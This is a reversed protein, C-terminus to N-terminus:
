KKLKEDNILINLIFFVGGFCALLFLLIALGPYGFIQFSTQIPMLLAAGIILSALVLGLAIRNAIKEFGVMLKREDISHVRIKLENRELVNLFNNIRGPLTYILDGMELFINSFSALSFMHRMRRQLISPLNEKILNNPNLTFDLSKIVSDLNLLTKGLTNFKSPLQLEHDSAIRVIELLLKGVAMEKWDNTQSESILNATEQYFPHYEFDETSKGLKIVIEAAEEGRNESIALLLKLLDQQMRPPIYEVMGVDFLAIKNEDTLFLNGPHPDIHVFGDVFIQKLYAKFLEEALNKSPIDLKLLPHLTTIKTGAMFEMTLVKSTTYDEIPLPIIISSFEKLNEAFITLNRAEKRFDLENLLSKRLSKIRDEWFYNKGLLKNHDLFNGLEELMNLDEIIKDRINPRQVKVAVHTGSHLMAEHVQSLSAAALPEPNFESFANKIETHLENEVIEKVEQFSFPHVNDQLKSLAEQYEQPIFETQTSLLQGLKIFTPGLKQLDEALEGIPPNKELAHSEPVEMNLLKVIDSRGYKIFLLALDKYRSLYKLSVM